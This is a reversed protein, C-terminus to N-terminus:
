TRCAGLGIIRDLDGQTVIVLVGGFCFIVGVAQWPTFREGLVLAALIIATIPWISMVISATIATTYGLGTFLFGQTFTLAVAISIVAVFHSRLQIAMERFHSRAFPLLCLMAISMRFFVMSWPPTYPGAWKVAVFVGGALLWCLALAETTAAGLPSGKIVHLAHHPMVNERSNEGAYSETELIGVGRKRVPPHPIGFVLAYGNIIWEVTTVDSEFEAEVAPLTV